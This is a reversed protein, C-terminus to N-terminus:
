MFVYRVSLSQFDHNIVLYEFYYSNNNIKHVVHVATSKGFNHVICHCPPGLDSSLVFVNAIHVYVYVSSLLVMFHIVACTCEESLFINVIRSSRM